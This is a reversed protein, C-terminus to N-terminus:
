VGHAEVNTRAVVVRQGNDLELEVAPLRAENEFEHTGEPISVVEGWAGFMPGRTVRVRAGQVIHGPRVVHQEVAALQEESIPILVEPRVAGARVQTRGSLSAVHGHYKRLLEFTPQSMELRGFGETLVVPIGTEELGTLGAELESGRLEVLDAQHMSGVIIGHARLQIAKEVAELSAWSGGVLIKGAVERHVAEATLPESPGRSRVMLEGYSEAGIGFVGGLQVAPTEIVAGLDPIIEKVIGGIYADVETVKTPRVIYVAGNHVDIREVTGAAPAYSYDMGMAGPSAALIEGQKVQEGERFRMYARIMAPWVDLDRAVNVVVMPQASQAQERILVSGLATSVFEIVGNVPARAVSTEGFLGRSLRAVPEGVQVRDGMKKLLAKEILEPNPGKLKLEARLDLVYPDGPIVETRAVVTDPQVRQGEEVLVDGALPLKRERRVLAGRYTYTEEMHRNM